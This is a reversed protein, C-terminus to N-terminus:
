EGISETLKLVAQVTPSNMDLDRNVPPVPHALVLCLAEFCARRVEMDEGDNVVVDRLIGIDSNRNANSILSAFGIAARARVGGDPDLRLLDLARARLNNMRWKTFLLSAAEARVRPENHVLLAEVEKVLDVRDQRRAAYLADILAAPEQDPHLNVGIDSSM